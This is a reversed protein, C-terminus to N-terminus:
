QYRFPIPGLIQWRFDKDVSYRTIFGEQIDSLLLGEGGDIRQKVLGNMITVKDAHPYDCERATVASITFQRLSLLEVLSNSKQFPRIECPAPPKVLLLASHMVEIRRGELQLPDIKKIEASTANSMTFRHGPGEGSVIAKHGHDSQLIVLSSELRGLERLRETAQRMMNTALYFQEIYDSESVYNGNRDLQFPPHPPYVHVLVYQGTAPRRAEDKLFQQFQHYSTYSRLDGVPTTSFKSAVTSFPGVGGTLVLPRAAVPATRLLWYDLLLSLPVAQIAPEILAEAAGFGHRSKIAYVTTKYGLNRLDSIVNDENARRLWEVITTSGDFLTGSLFSPFSVRTPQTNNVASSHYTFGDFTSAPIQWEQMGFDLWPGHYQDFVIQYVNPWDVTSEASDTIKAAATPIASVISVASSVLLVGTGIAAAPALRVAPVVWLVGLLAFFIGAQIATGTPDASVQENGAVLEGIDLPFLLDSVFISLSYALMLIAILRVANIPAVRFLLWFAGILVLGVLMVIVFSTLPRDIADANGAVIQGFFWVLLSLALAVFALYHARDSQGAHEREM